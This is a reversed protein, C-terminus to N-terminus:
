VLYKNCVDKNKESFKKFITNMRCSIVSLPPFTAICINTSVKVEVRALLRRVRADGLVGGGVMVDM